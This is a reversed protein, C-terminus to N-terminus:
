LVSCLRKAETVEEALENRVKGLLEEDIRVVTMLGLVAFLVTLATAGVAKAWVGEFGAPTAFAVVLTNYTAHILVAGVIGSVVGRLGGVRLRAVGVSYGAVTSVLAHMVNTPGRGVVVGLLTRSGFTFRTILHVLTEAYGFGLGVFCGAVAYGVPTELGVDRGVVYAATTKLIEEAPAVLFYFGLVSALTFSVSVEAFGGSLSRTVYAAPVIILAGVCLYAVIHTLKTAMARGSKTTWIFAAILSAPVTAAAALGAIPVVAFFVDASVHIPYLIVLSAYICAAALVTTRIGEPLRICTKETISRSDATNETSDLREPLSLV